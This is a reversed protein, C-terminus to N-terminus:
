LSGGLEFQRSGDPAEAGLYQLVGSLHAPSNPRAKVSGKLAFNGNPRISLSGAVEFPGTGLDKIRGLVGDEPASQDFSLEYDGLNDSGALAISLRGVRLTGM